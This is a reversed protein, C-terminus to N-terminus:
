LQIRALGSVATAQVTPPDQPLRLSLRFSEQQLQPGCQNTRAEPLETPSSARVPRGYTEYHLAIAVLPEVDVGTSQGQVM